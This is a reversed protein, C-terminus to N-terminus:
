SGEATSCQMWNVTKFVGAKRDFDFYVINEADLQRSSMLLGDYVEVEEGSGGDSYSIAGMGDPTGYQVATTASEEQLLIETLRGRWIPNHFAGVRVVAWKDGTGTEKYLIEAGGAYNTKLRYQDEEEDDDELDAYPHAENIVKLKTRIVGSVMAIGIEDEPLDQLLVGFKGIYTPWEVALGEFVPQRGKFLEVDDAPVNLLEGIALVEFKERDEECDNRVRICGPPLPGNLGALGGREALYNEVMARVVNWEDAYIGIPQGPIAAPRM